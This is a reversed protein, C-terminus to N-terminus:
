GFSAGDALAHGAELRQAEVREVVAAAPGQWCREIFAEVRAAPGSVQGEVAGDPTNKLQGQLGLRSLEERAWARYGVGQVQGEIRLRCTESAEKGSSGQPKDSEARRPVNFSWTSVGARQALLANAEYAIREYAQVVERSAERDFVMSRMAPNTEFIIIGADHESGTYPAFDCGMYDLGTSRLAERLQGWLGAGLHGAPDQLYARQPEQLWPHETLLRNSTTRRVNFDDMTTFRHAPYLEGGVLFARYKPYLRRGPLREDTYSVEYYQILYVEAPKQLRVNVEDLDDIRHMNKGGQYGAARLIVPAELGHEVAAQRITEGIEGELEGLYISKPVVVGPWDESRRANNQRTCELVRQPHNIVALGRREALQDSLWGSVKLADRCREPDTIGNYILDVQPLREILSPDDHLADVYLRDLTIHDGDLVTPLNNHGERIRGRGTRPHLSFAGSAMTQLVLVRLRQEGRARRTQLPKLVAAQRAYHTSLQEFGLLGYLGALMSVAEGDQPELRVLRLAACLATYFDQSSVAARMEARLLQGDEPALMLARHLHVRGDQARGQRMRLQALEGLAQPNTPDLRMLEELAAERAEDTQAESLRQRAEALGDPVPPAPTQGRGSSKSRVTRAVRGKNRKRGKAM